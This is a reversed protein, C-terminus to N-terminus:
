PWMAEARAAYMLGVADAKAAKEMQFAMEALGKATFGQTEPGAM